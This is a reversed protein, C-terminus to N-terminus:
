YLSTYFRVGAMWYTSSAEQLAVSEPSLTQIVFGSTGPLSSPMKFNEEVVERLARATRFCKARADKDGEKKVLCFVVLTAKRAGPGPRPTSTEIPDSSEVGMYIFSVKNRYGQSLSDVWYKAAWDPPAISDGKETAIAAVKTPLQAQLIEKVKIELLEEDMKYGAALAM